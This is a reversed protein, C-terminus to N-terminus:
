FNRYSTKHSKDHLQEPQILTALLLSNRKYQQKLNLFMKLYFLILNEQKFISFMYMTVYKDRAKRM